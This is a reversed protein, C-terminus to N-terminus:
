SDGGGFRTTNAPTSNGIDISGGTADKPTLTFTVRHTTGRAAKAEAEATMVWARVGGKASAERTLEVTFEMEIPGVEFRVAEGAGDAAAQTLEERIARVAASLEIKEFDSM